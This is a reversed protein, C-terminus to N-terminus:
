RAVEQLRVYKQLSEMNYRIATGVKVYAPGKGASRWVALTNPKVALFVAAAEEDILPPAAIKPALLVKTLSALQDRIQELLELGTPDTEPQVTTTNM